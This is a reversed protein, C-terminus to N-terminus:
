MSNNPSTARPMRAKESSRESGGHAAATAPRKRRRRRGDHQPRVVQSTNDSIV